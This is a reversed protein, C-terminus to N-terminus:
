FNTNHPPFNEKYPLANETSILNQYHQNKKKGEPSM